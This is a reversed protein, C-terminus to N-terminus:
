LRLYVRLSLAHDPAEPKNRNTRMHWYHRSSRIPIPHCFSRRVSLSRADLHHTPSFISQSPAIKRGISETVTAIQDLPISVVRRFVSVYLFKEDMQVTKCSVAFVLFVALLGGPLLLDWRAHGTEFSWSIFTLVFLSAFALTLM